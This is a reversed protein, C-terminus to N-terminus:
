KLFFFAVNFNSCFKFSSFKQVSQSQTAVLSEPKELRESNMKEQSENLDKMIAEIKPRSYRKMIEVIKERRNAQGTPRTEKDEEVQEVPLKEDSNLDIRKAECFIRRIEEIKSTDVSLKPLTKLVEPLQVIEKPPENIKSEGNKEIVTELCSQTEKAPPEKKGIAVNENATSSSKSPESYRKKIEEIMQKERATLEKLEKLNEGSYRRKIEEIKEKHKDTIESIKTDVKDTELKTQNLM